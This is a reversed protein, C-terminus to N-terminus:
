FKKNKFNKGNEAQYNLMELCIEAVEPDKSITLIKALQGNLKASFNLDAVNETLLSLPQLTNLLIEESSESYKGGNSRAGDICDDLIKEIKQLIHRDMAMKALHEGGLLYNSILGGRFKAFTVELENNADLKQDLLNIITVDGNLKLIINRADENNYCINGLARCCQIATMLQNDSLPQQVKAVTAASQQQQTESALRQLLIQLIADTTFRKRQGNIKTIEAITRDIQERVDADLDSRNMLDKFNDTLNITEYKTANSEASTVIRKLIDILKESSISGGSGSGSNNKSQLSITKFSQLLDEVEGPFNVFFLSVFIAANNMKIPNAMCLLSKVVVRNTAIVVFKWRKRM